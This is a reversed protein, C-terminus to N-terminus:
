SKSHLEENVIRELFDELANICAKDRYVRHKNAAIKNSIQKRWELDAGLRISLAIYDDLLSAITETVGMMTLMASSHRSRMLEGPLTVIPLNHAIAEFTSNCGSWGISDLYIDTLSNIANYERADLRPLFIAYNDARLGFKNFSKNIRRRFQETVYSSKHSIFVFQCDSVEKAIRPFIEDYQPLYKNLSQCCLYLVCKQPLNFTERNMTTPSFDLPTYYISLNPLRILKETYHDDADVPEMLDSSLFYSITPLGSTDPHGWSACQIPALHLSALRTTMADMGIGPYILVHLHDNRIIRCLEEFSNIDEIFSTFSRRAEETAKDKKIGTHYGYLSFQKKDINEIWGKMPIKWNSHMWFFGSVFGIRLPEKSSHSPMAPRDAFEPYRLSMIRCILNGYFQQLERDNLGQYALFFPWGSGVADAASIINEKTCSSVLNLLKMLEDFYHDRCIQVHSHESYIIPLQSICKAFRARFHHPNLLIVKEYNMIAEDHKGQRELAIGLNFYADTYNPNLEISKKYCAIAEDTQYCAIAENLQGKDLLANGLNYIAKIFNPNIEIAKRYCNIPEEIQGKKKLVIALGLYASAYNPDLEIAGQYCIIAEDIKGEKQLSAGTSLIQEAKALLKKNKKQKSKFM